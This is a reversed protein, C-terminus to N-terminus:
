AARRWGTGTGRLYMEPAMWEPTGVIAPGRGAATDVATTLMDTDIATHCRAAESWLQSSDDANTPPTIALGPDSSMTEFEPLARAMLPVTQM